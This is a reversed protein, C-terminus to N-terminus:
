QPHRHRVVGGQPWRFLLVVNISTTGKMDRNKSLPSAIDPRNTIRGIGNGEANCEVGGKRHVVMVHEYRTDRSARAVPVVPVFSPFLVPDAERRANNRALGGHVAQRKDGATMGQRQM